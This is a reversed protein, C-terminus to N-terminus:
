QVLVCLHARLCMCVCLFKCVNMYLHEQDSQVLVHLHARACLCMSACLTVYVRGYMYLHELGNKVLVCFQARACVCVREYM